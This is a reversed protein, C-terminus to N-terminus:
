LKTSEWLSSQGFLHLGDHLGQPLVTWTLQSAPQMPDELAFVFQSEEALRMSYLVAKLDIVSFGKAWESIESLLTSLNPVVPHLPFVAENIIWLDQVLRLKGNSKRIGLIPTNSASNCSILLGQEKLLHHQSFQDVVQLLIFSSCKRVGYM